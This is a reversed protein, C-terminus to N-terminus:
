TVALNRKAADPIPLPAIKSPSSVGMSVYISVLKDVGVDAPQVWEAPVYALCGGVPIPASPILVAHYPTDGVMIPEPTPLLALVAASDPGGFFCWVPSMSKLGDVDKKDILAVFRHILDYLNGILPIRRMTSDLFQSLHSRLKSEVALGLLYVVVMFVILGILYAVFQSASFSFGITMLAHGVVSSPGVYAIIFQGLWAVVALTIILPLLLILGSVFTRFMHTM